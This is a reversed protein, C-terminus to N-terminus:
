DREEAYFMKVNLYEQRNKDYRCISIFEGEASYLRVREGDQNEAKEMLMQAAVANGNCALRTWKQQVTVKPLEAFMQDAPVIIESLRGEKQCEEIQALTLADKMLFSSVQTRVLEEMCAGCGLKEGIDHCLTRIYTGKSCHIKMRVRPLAIEMIEIEYIEVFRAKRPVSKGERALEYLKRGDVKIASYM